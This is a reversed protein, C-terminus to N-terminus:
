SKQNQLRQERAQPGTLSSNSVKSLSSTGKKPKVPPQQQQDAQKNAYLGQITQLASQGFSSDLDAGLFLSMSQRKPYPPKEKKLQAETIQKTMEKSLFRHVEPYLSTFHQMHEPTLSGNNVHDLISMPNVAVSLAKEYKRNQEPTTQVDDFAAKPQNTQPRLGNLYASIRGKAASLLTNQEPFINSFGHSPEPKVEGGHAFSNGQTQDTITNQMQKEIGGMELIERLSQKAADSTPPAIQATGAKMCAGVGAIAMKAGAGAKLAYHVANPLGSFENTLIGKIVADSAYNNFKSVIKGAAWDTIPSVKEKIKEFPVSWPVFPLKAKIATAGAGALSDAAIEAQKNVMKSIGFDKALNKSNGLNDLISEVKSVGEKTNLADLGKGILGEGYTFVGGTAAGLLGAAGVHLLAASVPHEPDSGPQGLFAKTMEDSAAFSATEVAAKLVSRGVMGLESAKAAAEAGKAILGAEGTGLLMSGALTGAESIGHTLPFDQARKNIAEPTSIGLMTEAAPAIPGLLGQSAGELAAKGQELYGGGDPQDTSLSDWDPAAPEPPPASLSNWEPAQQQPQEASLSDWDPVAGGDSFYECDSKHQRGTSCFNVEGGGSFGQYGNEEGGSYCRCNPHPTGHSKCSPNLCPLYHGPSSEPAPTKKSVEHIEPVASRGFLVSEPGPPIGPIAPAQRPGYIYSKGPSPPKRAM